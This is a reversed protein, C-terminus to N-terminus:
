VRVQRSIVAQAALTHKTKIHHEVIAPSTPYKDGGTAEVFTEAVANGPSARLVVPLSEDQVPGHLASLGDVAVENEEHRRTSPTSSVM